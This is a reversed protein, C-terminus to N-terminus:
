VGAEVLHLAVLAGTIGGGIVVADCVVDRQLSPYSAPLGNSISWFPHSSTLNMLSSLRILRQRRPPSRAQDNKSQKLRSRKTRRSVTNSAVRHATLGSRLKTFNLADMSRRAPAVVASRSCRM